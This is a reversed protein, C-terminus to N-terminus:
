KAPSRAYDKCNDQRAAKRVQWEYITSGRMPICEVQEAATIFRLERGVRSLNNWDAPTHFNEYDFAGLYTWDDSSGKAKKTTLPDLSVLYDDGMPGVIAIKGAPTLYVSTRSNHAWDWATMAIKIHDHPTEITLYRGNETQVDWIYFFRLTLTTRLEPIQM